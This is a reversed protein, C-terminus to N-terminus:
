WRPWHHDIFQLAAAALTVLAALLRKNADNPPNTQM